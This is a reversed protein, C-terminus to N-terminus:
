CKVVAFYAVLHPCDPIPLVTQPESKPNRSHHVVLEPLRVKLCNTQFSCDVLELLPKRQRDATRYSPRFCHPRREVQLWHLHFRIPRVLDWAVLM